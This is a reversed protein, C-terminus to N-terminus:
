RQYNLVKVPIVRFHFKSTTIGLSELSKSLRLGAIEAKEQTLQGDPASLIIRVEAREKDDMRVKIGTTRFQSDKLMGTKPNDSSDENQQIREAGMLSLERRIRNKVLFKKYSTELPKLILISLLILLALPLFSRKWSGVSQSLYTILAAAVIGVFNCFYLLLAGLTIEYTMNPLVLSGLRTHLEPPLTLGIGGVCLPPVLAVAIAVGAIANSINSRTTIYAAVSGGILAIFLDILSPSTRSFIESGMANVHVFSSLLYASFFVFASGILFSILSRLASRAKGNSIAVAFGLLPDMLPAIIMAAIVVATSNGILGLTALLASAICRFLYDASVRSNKDREKQLQITPIVDGADINWLLLKSLFGNM